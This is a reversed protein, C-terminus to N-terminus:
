EKRTRAFLEDLIREDEPSLATEATASESDELFRLQHAMKIVALAARDSGKLAKQLQRLVVGELRTVRRTKEGEQISINATMAERILTKLNKSGKPRGKANGSTGPKFRSELPPQGYGVPNHASHDSASKEGRNSQGKRGM